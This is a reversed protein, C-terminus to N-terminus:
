GEVIRHCMPKALDEILVTGEPQVIALQQPEYARFLVPGGVCATPLWSIIHLLYGPATGEFHSLPDLRKCYTKLEKCGEVFDLWFPFGFGEHLLEM